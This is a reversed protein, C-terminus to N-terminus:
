PVVLGRYFRQGFMATNTDTFVFPALNTQLSVWVPTALNTTAQVVYNSGMTGSLTFSFQNGSYSVMTFVPAIAPPNTAIIQTVTGVVALDAASTGAANYIYWTGSSGGNWNVIRFTVNTNAGINQLQVISSLDIAGVSAGSSATSYSLNTIDNFLGPGIQYQLVGNTPGTGSRYYDFRSIATYSIQYGNSVTLSFTTFQNSGVAASATLNTFAVGGWGGAAANGTTRVGSGRTLGAVAVNAANTTAALPSAGYNGTGGTLTSTDWGALIGSYVTGGGSGFVTFSNASIATGSATTVSVFGSGANTPVVATIQNSSNVVFSATTGNFAVSTAGQFNTGTIIVNTGVSGSNPSFTFITPPPNTQGDVKARLAAAIDPALATFFTLGTDVQIQNASTIYNQWASLIGNTNPVKIAIVRNTATIRNTATGAGLPVVVAIKWTYQPIAVYGNTNIKAGTFGSPGCIILLENGANALGRCYNEFGLWTVENNDPAQPMMNSMLFTLDNHNTTDTRDESNCLHGRDYGSHAYANAAVPYFSSPLNTDPAYSNQRTVGNTPSDASTFDWSAWNAQGLTDNYDMAEITRLILFHAHNNTDATAGSPNGLQMQLSADIIASAKFVGGLLTLGILCM